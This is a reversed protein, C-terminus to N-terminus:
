YMTRNEEYIRNLLAYLTRGVEGNEDRDSMITSEQFPRGAASMSSFALPHPPHEAPNPPQLMAHRSQRPSMRHHPQHHMQLEPRVGRRPRLLSNMLLSSSNGPDPPGYYGAPAHHAGENEARALIANLYQSGEEGPDWDPNNIKFNLFSQEMKGGKSTFHENDAQTPAGYKANGNKRFDWVAFSCVYGIGDVHVTFEKFFDIIEGACSPLSYFLIIPALVVSAIEQVFLLLKYPLLASFQRRVQDTHMKGRWSDPMYRVEEVVNRLLLAPEFVENDDPVMGRVVATSTAFIGIYFFVSRAPTIEFGHMLDASLLTAVILVSLFSGTIFSVFRAIITVKANPFQNMYKNALRYSRNLRKQFLDPLENFERFKWRAFPSYQRTGLSSPNKHFEETYRFFFHMVLLSLIFPACILNIAGMLIFRKRLGEVMKNRDGGTVFKKGVNGSDGFVYGLICFQLNWEMVKTLLHFNGMYPLPVTLNLVDKNFLAIMYNDKRLIRNAITHANLSGHRIPLPTLKTIVDAWTITQMETEGFELVHKYFRSIEMLLPIDVLLRLLQSSWWLFFLVIIFKSGGHVSALCNPRIVESLQKKEHIMPYDICAFLFTSFGVIFALILLNTVKALFISQFGKGEYFSYLKELILDLNEAETWMKMAREKPDSPSSATFSAAVSGLFGLAPKRGRIQPGFGRRPPRRSRENMEPRLGRREGTLPAMEFRISAPAEGNDSDDDGNDDDNFNIVPPEYATAFNDYNQRAPRNPAPAVQDWDTVYIGLEPVQPAPSPGPNDYPVPLTPGGDDYFTPPSNPEDSDSDDNLSPPAYNGLPPDHINVNSYGRPQQPDM